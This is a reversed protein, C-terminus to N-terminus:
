KGKVLISPRGTMRDRAGEYLSIGLYSGSINYLNTFGLGQLACIAYYSRQSSRCHLYVPRDTPIEGTRKRLESLPINKAGKIHGAAFEGKERVDIICAGKEVLPRVATVPVQRYVGHLVNLGAMGALNVADKANGYPPAYCLEADRLDELTGDKQIFAAIVDIRRVADGHGICQAGLIKGTPIEFVVKLFIPSVGPMLSVRDPPMVTVSDHSIGAKGAAEESLGVGACNLSFLPLAFSNIVGPNRVPKGEIALAARRGEMQSPGALSAEEKKHSIAQSVEVADGTAYISPDSTRYSADVAIAGTEGIALGAERALKVEPRIGVALVVIDAPIEKGSALRVSQPLVDTLRDELHLVVGHDLLEKALIQAMDDDLPPLVHRGPTCLEVHLGARVLHEAIELGVFGGGAVFVSKAKKTDIAEKLRVIDGLSRITFARNSSLGQPVVPHAGPSLILADYPEEYTKKEKEDYITVTKEKRNIRVAESNTRADINYRSRFAAPSMMVLSAASKVVGSLYFPMSCNSYSVQPGKELLIIDAKENLRRLKAAASAGGAGGGIIIYRRIGTNERSANGAATEQNYSNM